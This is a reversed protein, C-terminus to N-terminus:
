LGLGLREEIKWRGELVEACPRAELKVEEKNECRGARSAGESSEASEDDGDVHFNLRDPKVLGKAATDSPVMSSRDRGGLGLM